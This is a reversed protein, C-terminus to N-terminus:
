DKKQTFIIFTILLVRKIYITHMGKNEKFTDWLFFDSRDKSEKNKRKILIVASNAKFQVGFYKLVFFYLYKSLRM